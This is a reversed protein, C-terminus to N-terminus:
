PLRLLSRPTMTVDKGLVLAELWTDDETFSALGSTHNLMMSVTIMDTDYKEDSVLGPLWYELSDDLSLKGEEALQMVVMATFTKSNSGIRFGATSSMPTGNVTDSVGATKVWKNGGPTLIVMACGPINKAAVRTDVFQRLKQDVVSGPVNLLILRFHSLADAASVLSSDDNDLENIVDQATTEFDAAAFDVTMGSANSHVDDAILIGNGFDYDEDWPISSGSCISLRRIMKM